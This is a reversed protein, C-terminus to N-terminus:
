KKLPDFAMNEKVFEYGEPFGNLTFTLDIDGCRAIVTKGALMQELLKRAKGMTIGQDEFFIADNKDIRIVNSKHCNNSKSGGDFIFASRNGYKQSDILYFSIRYLNGDGATYVSTNCSKEDTFKDIDCSAVWM